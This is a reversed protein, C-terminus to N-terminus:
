HITRCSNTLSVKRAWFPLSKLLDAREHYAAWKVIKDRIRDLPVPKSGNVEVLELPVGRLYAYALQTARAEERLNRTRHLHLENHTDIHGPGKIRREERRIIRAECALSKVNIKAKILYLPKM